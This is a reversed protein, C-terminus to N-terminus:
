AFTPKFSFSLKSLNMTTIPSISIENMKMITTRQSGSHEVPKDIIFTRNNPQEIIKCWKNDAYLYKGVYDEYLLNAASVITGPEYRIYIKREAPYAPDLELFGYDHYLFALTSSKTYENGQSDIDVEALITKGNIGDIRVEKNQATTKDASMAVLKLEQNTTHNRIVVGAGSNGAAIVSLGARESGPNGIILNTEQTLNSFSLPPAMGETDYLATNEMVNDHYLMNKLSYLEDCRAFPYYAKITIKILGNMYNTIEHDDYGTVTGYYYCWPRRQFILKGQRGIRFFSQLKNLFGRDITKDEFFCRLVFEKPQKSAKYFYGGNHGEFTEEHIDTESPRYVFTDSLEPAYEIGLEAIDTGCFSFGGKM